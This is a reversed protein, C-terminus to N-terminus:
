HKSAPPGPKKPLRGEDDWYPRPPHDSKANPVPKDNASSLLLGTGEELLGISPTYMAEHLKGGSPPPAGAFVGYAKGNVFSTSIYDGVMYGQNTVALWSTNMGQGLVKGQAWTQGGDHSSVFGVGLKCNADTCNSVPYFYFTLGIHATNGSTTPDVALGPIFHDITSSVPDIPVRAVPSWNRGDSSKSMVIDNSSCGSRFRCDQWAVYVTGAGDIEASPLPSTRLSGHVGHESISGVSVPSKWTNGGDTSTFAEIDGSEFPVVVTGNPQIVPQGGLGFANPVNKAASWTHGGDTSTSMQVQDGDEAADWEVYCHGYFPSSPNSDCAIWSKDDFGSTTHVTVPNNWTLGGDSSSSALVGVGVANTIAISAILWKGHAADYAVSPDSVSTYKGGQYYVTIGPLFGHKWTSGGDTSTSFGIDSCGGDYIRGTQFASVITSGFAFTDPEVQTAHQSQPNSFPDSSIRTLGKQAQVATAVLLLGTLTLITSIWTFVRALHLSRNGRNM